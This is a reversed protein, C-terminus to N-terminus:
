SETRHSGMAFFIDGLDNNDDEENGKLECMINTAIERAESLTDSMRKAFMDAVYLYYPEKLPIDRDFQKKLVSIIKNLRTEDKATTESVEVRIAPALVSPRYYFVYLHKCLEEIEEIKDQRSEDDTFKNGTLGQYPRIVSEPIFTMHWADQPRGAADKSTRTLLFPKTYEGKKLLLTMLMRDDFEKNWNYKEGLERRTTYKPISIYETNPDSHLINTYDVLAQDARKLFERQIKNPKMKFEIIEKTLSSFIEHLQILISTFSGDLMIVDYKEDRASAAVNLEMEIRLSSSVHESEVQHKQPAIFYQWLRETEVDTNDGVLVAGIVVIDRWLMQEIANTGDVAGVTLHQITSLELESDNRLMNDQELQHRYRRSERRITQLTKHGENGIQVSEKLFVNLVAEPIGALSENVDADPRYSPREFETTM